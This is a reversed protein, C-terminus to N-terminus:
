ETNKMYKEADILAKKNLKKVGRISMELADAISEYTKGNLYKEELCRRRKENPIQRIINYAQKKMDVLRDVDANIEDRLELIKDVSNEMSRSVSGNSSVADARMVSTVKTALSKLRELHECKVNIQRDINVIQQFFEKAENM